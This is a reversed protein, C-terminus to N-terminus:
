GNQAEEAIKGSNKYELFYKIYKEAIRLLCLVLGFALPLYIIFIPIELAPSVQGSRALFIVSERAPGLMILCFGAFCVDTFYEFPKKLKPIFTEFLDIRLHAKNRIGYSLGSFALLIFFYRSLEETWVLSANFVYRSIVQAFMCITIMGLSSVIFIEEFNDVLWRCKKLM